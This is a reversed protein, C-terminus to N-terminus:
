RFSSISFGFRVSRGRPAPGFVSAAPANVFEDLVVMGALSGANGSFVPSDEFWGFAPTIPASFDFPEADPPKAYATSFDRSWDWDDWGRAPPPVPILFFTHWPEDDQKSRIEFSRSPDDDYVIKPIIPLLGTDIEATAQSWRGDRCLQWRQSEDWEFLPPQPVRPLWDDMALMRPTPDVARFQEGDDPLSFFVQGSAPAKFAIAQGANNAIQLTSGAYDSYIWTINVTATTPNYYLMLGQDQDLNSGEYVGATDVAEHSSPTSVGNIQVGTVTQQNEQQVALILGNATSPTISPGTVLGSDIPIGILTSTGSDNATTDFPTTSAGSIDFFNFDPNQAGPTAAWNFTVSYVTGPTANPAWWWQSFFSSTPDLSATSHSWTLAPSSTVSTPTNTGSNQTLGIALLNGTSFMQFTLSTASVASLLSPVNIVEIGRVRIGAALDNGAVASKLAISKKIASTVSVSSTITPNIAGATAQVQSQVAM